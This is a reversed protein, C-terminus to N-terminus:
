RDFIIAAVTEAASEGMGPLVHSAHRDDGDRAVARLPPRGSLGGKGQRRGDILLDGSFRNLQAAIRWGSRGRGGLM